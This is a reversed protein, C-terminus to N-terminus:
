YDYDKRMGELKTLIETASGPQIRLMEQLEKQTISERESLIALIRGQGMDKGFRHYLHHGCARLINYLDDQEWPMKQEYGRGHDYKHGQEHECVYGQEHKREHDHKHKFEQGHDHDHKYEYEQEHRKEHKHGYEQEYGYHGELLGFKM